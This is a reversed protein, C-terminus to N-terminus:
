RRADMARSPRQDPQTSGPRGTLVTPQPRVTHRGAALLGFRVTEDERATRVARDCTSPASWACVGNRTRIAQAM